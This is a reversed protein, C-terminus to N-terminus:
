TEQGRLFVLSLMTLVASFFALSVFNGALDSLGLGKTFAGVSVPLFYTM